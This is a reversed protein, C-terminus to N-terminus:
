DTDDDPVETLRLTSPFPKINPTPTPLFWGKQRDEFYARLAETPDPRVAEETLKRCVAWPDGRVASQLGPLWLIVHNEEPLALVLPLTALHQWVWYFTIGKREAASELQVWGPPLSKLRVLHQRATEEHTCPYYEVPGNGEPDVWLNVIAVEGKDKHWYVSFDEDGLEM